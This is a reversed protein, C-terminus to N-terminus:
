KRNFQKKKVRKKCLIIILIFNTLITLIDIIVSVYSKISFDYFVWFSMTVIILWKFNIVNKIDILWLYTLASITPFWAIINNKGLFVTLIITLITILIKEKLGLKNKYFLINRVINLVNNIFGTFGGLVINSLAYISFFITQSIIIKGKQKLLGTSIMIIGAILVIFNGILINM